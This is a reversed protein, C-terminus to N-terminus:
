MHTTGLFPWFLVDSERTGSSHVEEAGQFTLGTSVPLVKLWWAMEVGPNPTTSQQMKHKLPTTQM